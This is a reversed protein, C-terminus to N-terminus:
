SAETQIRYLLGEAQGAEIVQAVADFLPAAAITRLGGGRGPREGVYLGEAWLREGMPDVHTRVGRELDRVFLGFERRTEIGDQGIYPGAFRKHYRWPVALTEEVHHYFTLSQQDPLDLVAIRGGLARLLAFPSDPGYGSDNTLGDFRAAQAGIAAFSYLPHGTRAAGPHLRGAETLVGMQSPTARIDFLAGKTFDFNFLPLLLTGEPGVAAIFSDLIVGVARDAALGAKLLGRVTRGISSHVLLLDGAAVGAARWRGALEAILDAVM